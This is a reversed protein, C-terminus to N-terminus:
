SRNDRGEMREAGGLIEGEYSLHHTLQRRLLSLYPLLSRARKEPGSPLLSSQSSSVSVSSFVPVAIIIEDNSVLFLHLIYLLKVDAYIIIIHSAFQQVM